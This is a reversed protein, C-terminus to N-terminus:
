AAIQQTEKAVTIGQIYDAAKQAQSAAWTLWKRQKQDKLITLWGNICATQNELTRNEIGAIGCLYSACFEAVLEEKSYEHSGHGGHNNLDRNLRTEHGTSHGLEHFLTAYYLEANDFQSLEPVTVADSMPSYFARNSPRVNITPAYPMADIISQASAIREHEKKPAESLDPVKLGECQDTNFMPTYRLMAHSKLDDSSVEGERKSTDMKNEIVRYFVVPSPSHEGKRVNGGLSQAQKYSVWFPSQYGKMHSTYSLLFVNIGRYAKTSVFNRPIGATGGSWPKQWPVAGKELSEVVRDTIMKYVDM